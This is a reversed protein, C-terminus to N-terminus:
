SLSVRAATPAVGDDGGYLVDVPSGPLLIGFDPTATAFAGNAEVHVRYNIDRGAPGTASLVVSGGSAVPSGDARHVVRGVCNTRSVDLDIIESGRAARVEITAGGIPQYVDSDSDIVAAVVAIINPKGYLQDPPVSDAYAAEAAACEVMLEVNRSEGAALTVSTHELYTRYWGLRQEAHLHVHAPRDSYPNAIEVPIRQRSFASSSVTWVVTYNSQAENNSTSVEGRPPTGQTHPAIRAILCYHAFGFGYLSPGTHAPPRWLMSMNRNSGAPIDGTDWGLFTEPANASVTFDKVWFGVRVGVADISGTNAVRATIINDHGAWPMYVNTGSFNTVWVDPSRWDDGGPWPRISPDPGNPWPPEPEPVPQYSVQVFARDDDASLVELKFTSNGTADLEEYDEGVGLVSGEGDGDDVLLRIPTRAVPPHYTGAAVDLGVVRRDEPLSQDAVQTPGPDSATANQRSRYEFYYRWGDAIEVIAGAREGVPPPAAGLLETATLTITEHVPNEVRFNYTRLHRPDVWGLMVQHPLCLSPLGGDWSMVDYAGVPRSDTYLDPMGLTHGIEHTLVEFARRGASDLSEWEAPAVTWTLAKWWWGFSGSPPQSLLYTGGWAVPWTFRPISNPMSPDPQGANPSAVVFVATDVTTFDIDAQALLLAQQIFERGGNRAVWRQDTASFNTMYDGWPRPLTVTSEGAAVISLRGDSQEGYYAAVSRSVGDVDLVGAVLADRYVTDTGAPLMADATNIFVLAIRRQGTVAQLGYTFTQPMVGNFLSGWTGGSAYLPNVGTFAISAGDVGTWRDTVSFPAEALVTGSGDSARLTYRGPHPGALLMVQPRAPDFLDDRSGSLAAVGPGEVVEIVLDDLTL